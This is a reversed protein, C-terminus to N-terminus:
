PEDPRRSPSAALNERAEPGTVHEPRDYQSSIAPPTRARTSWTVAVLLCVAMMLELSPNLYEAVFRITAPGLDVLLELLATSVSVVCLFVFALTLLLYRAESRRRYSGISVVTLAGSIVALAVEVLDGYYLAITLL